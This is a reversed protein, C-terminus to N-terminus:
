LTTHLRVMKVPTGSDDAAVEKHAGDAQWGSESVFRRLVDDTTRVWWTAREFGDARLTDAVANLLRSGHGQRQFQPDIVFEAVLSDEGPHADPDDSPGIAAFGAPRADALAVLVRFEALPPRGIAAEWAEAMQALSISKLIADSMPTPLTQQWGRRQIAAIQEAEAPLALRVSDPASPQSM